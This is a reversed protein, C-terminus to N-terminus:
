VAIQFPLEIQEQEIKRPLAHKYHYRRIKRKGAGLLEITWEKLGGARVMDDFAQRCDKRFQSRTSDTEREGYVERDVLSALMTEDVFLHTPKSDIYPWFSKAYDSKLAFQVEANLSVLNKTRFAALVGRGFRVKVKSDLNVGDWEVTDIIGTIMGRGGLRGRHLKEMIQDPNGEYITIVVQRLDQFVQKQTLLNNVHQTLGQAKLLERWTTVVEIVEFHTPVGHLTGNLPADPNPIRLTAMREKLRFLAYIVDRHLSGLEGGRVQVVSQGPVYFIREINSDIIGRRKPAFASTRTLKAPVPAPNRRGRRNQRTRRDRELRKREVESLEGTMDDEASGRRSGIM